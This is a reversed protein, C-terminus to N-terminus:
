LTIGTISLFEKLDMVVPIELAEERDNNIELTEDIPDYPMVLADETDKINNVM